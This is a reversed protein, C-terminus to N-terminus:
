VREESPIGSRTNGTRRPGPLLCNQTTTDLFRSVTEM